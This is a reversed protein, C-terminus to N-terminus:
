TRPPIPTARGFPSSPRAPTPAPTEARGVQQQMAAAHSSPPAPPPTPGGLRQERAQDISRDLKGLISKAQTFARDSPGIGM